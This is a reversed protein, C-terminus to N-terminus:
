PRSRPCSRASRPRPGVVGLEGNSGGGQEEIVRAAGVLARPDRARGSRRAGSRRGRRQAAELDADARARQRGPLSERRVGDIGLPGRGCRCAARRPRLRHERTRRRSRPACSFARCAGGWRLAPPACGMTVVGSGAIWRRHGLESSRHSPRARREHLSESRRRSERRSSEARARIQRDLRWGACHKCEARGTAKGIDASELRRSSPAGYRRANGRRTTRRRRPSRAKRPPPTAGGGPNACNRGRACQAECNSSTSGIVREYPAERARGPAHGGRAGTGRTVGPEGSPNV